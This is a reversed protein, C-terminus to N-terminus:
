QFFIRYTRKCRHCYHTSVTVGPAIEASIPGNEGILIALTHRNFQGIVWGCAWCRLPEDVPLTEKYLYIVTVPAIM